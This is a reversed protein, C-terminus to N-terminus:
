RGEKALLKNALPALLARRAEIQRRLFRLDGDSLEAYRLTHTSGDGDVLTVHEANAGSLRASHLVRGGADTWARATDSNWGGPERLAGTPTFLDEAAPGDAEPAAAPGDEGNAPQRADDDAPAPEREAPASEAPPQEDTSSPEEASEDSFLEEFPMPEAPETPEPQQDEPAPEL